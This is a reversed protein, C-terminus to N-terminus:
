LKKYLFHIETLYPPVNATKKLVPHELNLTVHGIYLKNPVIVFIKSVHIIYIRIEYKSTVFNYQLM